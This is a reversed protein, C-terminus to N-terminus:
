KLYMILDIDSLLRQDLFDCQHDWHGVIAHFSEDAIIVTDFYHWVRKFLEDVRRRRCKSHMCDLVGSLDLARSALVTTGAGTLPSRLHREALEAKERLQLLAQEDTIARKAQALTRIQQEEVWGALWHRVDNM